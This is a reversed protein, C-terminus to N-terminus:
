RALRQRIEAGPNIPLDMSWITSHRSRAHQLHESKRIPHDEQRILRERKDKTFAIVTVVPRLLNGIGHSALAESLVKGGTRADDIESEQCVNNAAEQLDVAIVAWRDRGVGTECLSGRGAAALVRM